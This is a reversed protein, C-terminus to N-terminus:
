YFYKVVCFTYRFTKYKDLCFFITLFNLQLLNLNNGNELEVKGRSDLLFTPIFISLKSSTAHAYLQSIARRFSQQGTIISSPSTIASPPWECRCNKIPLGQRSQPSLRRLRSRCPHTRQCAENGLQVSHSDRLEILLKDEKKYALFRAVGTTLPESNMCM